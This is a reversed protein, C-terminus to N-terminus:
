IIFISLMSLIIILYLLAILVNKVDISAALCLWHKVSRKVSDHVANYPDNHLRSELLLVEPYDKRKFWSIRLRPSM